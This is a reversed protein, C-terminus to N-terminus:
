LRWRPLAQRSCSHSPPSSAWPMPWCSSSCPYRFSLAARAQARLRAAVHPLRPMCVRVLLKRMTSDPVAGHLMPSVLRNAPDTDKDLFMSTTITAISLCSMTISFVTAFSQKAAGLLEHMQILATPVSECVIEVVECGFRENKSDVPAGVNVTGRLIRWTDVFPKVGTIVFLVELMLRRKGHHRHNHLVIFIQLSMSLM